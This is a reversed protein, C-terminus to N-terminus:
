QPEAELITEEDVYTLIDRLMNAVVDGEVLRGHPTPIEVLPCEKVRTEEHRRIVIHKTLYCVLCCDGNRYFGFPCEECEKPMDMGKIIISM